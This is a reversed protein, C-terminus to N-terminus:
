PKTILYLEPNQCVNNYRVEFHLHNGTSNGTSGVKGITEGTFVQQGSTVLVESMHAYLTTYGNNHDIMVFYGYGGSNWGASIVTGEASAHIPTGYPASIDLGKHNRNSIFTDSIYGIGSDIPSIFQGDQLQQYDEQVNSNIVAVDDTNYSQTQTEPEITGISIVESIPEKIIQPELTKTSIEVGNLYTIKTVNKQTGVEGNIIVNSEGILLTDDYQTITEFPINTESSITKTYEVDIFPEEKQILIKDGTRCVNPNTIQPNLELLQQMTLGSIEAILSLSDGDEVTYFINEKANGLITNIMTDPNVMYETLYLGKTYSVNKNFHAETVNEMSLYKNLTDNLADKIKSNDLVAGLFEDNIFVGYGESMNQSTDNISSTTTIDNNTTTISTTTTTTENNSHAQFDQIPETVEGMAKVEDEISNFSFRPFVNLELDKENINRANTMNQYEVQTVTTINNKSNLNNELSATYRVSAILFGVSIVPVCYKVITLLNRNFINKDFKKNM